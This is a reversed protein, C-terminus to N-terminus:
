HCETLVFREKMRRCDHLLNGAQKVETSNHHAILKVRQLTDEIRELLDLGKYSYEAVNWMDALLDLTWLVKPIEGIVTKHAADNILDLLRDKQNVLLNSLDTENIVLM